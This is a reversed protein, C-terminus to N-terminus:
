SPTENSARLRSPPRRASLGGILFALLIITTLYFTLARSIVQSTQVFGPEWQYLAFVFYTVTTAILVLLTVTLALWTTWRGHRRVGDANRNDFGILGSTFMGTAVTVGAQVVPSQLFRELFAGLGVIFNMGHTLNMGGTYWYAGLLLFVPCFVGVLVLSFVIAAWRSMAVGLAQRAVRAEVICLGGGLMHGCGICDIREPLRSARASPQCTSCRFQPQKGPSLRLSFLRLEALARKWSLEM